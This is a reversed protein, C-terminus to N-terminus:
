KIRALLQKVAKAARIEVQKLTKAEFSCEFIDAEYKTRFYPADRNGGGCYLWFKMTGDSDLEEFKLWVRLSADLHGESESACEQGEYGCQTEGCEDCEGFSLFDFEYREVSPIVLHLQIGGLNDSHPIFGDRGIYEAETLECDNWYVKSKIHEQVPQMAKLLVDRLGVVENMGIKFTRKSEIIQLKM